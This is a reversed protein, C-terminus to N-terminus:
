NEITKRRKYENKNGEKKLLHQLSEVVLERVTIGRNIAEKKINNILDVDVQHITFSKKEM